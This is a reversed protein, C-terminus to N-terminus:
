AEKEIELTTKEKSEGFQAGPIIIVAASNGNATQINKWKVGAWRNVAGLAAMVLRYAEAPRPARQGGGNRAPVQVQIPAAILPKADDLRM